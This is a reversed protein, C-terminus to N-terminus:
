LGLTPLEAVVDLRRLDGDACMDALVDEDPVIVFGTAINDYGITPGTESEYVETGITEYKAVLITM